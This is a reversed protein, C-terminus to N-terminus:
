RDNKAHQVMGIESPTPAPEAFIDNARRPVMSNVMGYVFLVCVLVIAFVDCNPIPKEARQVITRDLGTFKATDFVLVVLPSEYIVEHFACSM